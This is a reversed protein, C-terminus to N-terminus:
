VVDEREALAPARCKVGPLRRIARPLDAHAGSVIQEFFRRPRDAAPKSVGTVDM